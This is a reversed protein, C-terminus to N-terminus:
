QSWEPTEADVTATGGQVSTVFKCGKQGVSRQM